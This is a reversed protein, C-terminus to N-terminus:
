CCFCSHAVSFLVFCPCQYKDKDLYTVAFGPAKAAIAKVEYGADMLIRELDLAVFIEDEVILATPLSM